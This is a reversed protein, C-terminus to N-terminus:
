EKRITLNKEKGLSDIITIIAEDGEMKILPSTLAECPDIRDFRKGNISVVKEGGQLKGKMSDWVFGAILTDGSVTVAVNWVKRDLDVALPEYPEFYFKHGPFDLTVVGYKLVEAGLLSVAGQITGTIVNIFKGLGLRVDPIKVRYKRDAKEVGGVGMGLVGYGSDLTVVSHQAQLAAYGAETMGLFDSAGTDFMVKELHGNGLNLRVFPINQKNTEMPQVTRLNLSFRDAKAALTLTQKKADIRVVTYPFLSSGIVGDVGYCEMPNGANLVLAPVNRFNIEGLSVSKLEMQKFVSEQGHADTIKQETFETNQYKEARSHTLCVPAGTDFIYRGEIGDIQAHIIITNRVYEFPLEVHYDQAIVERSLFCGWILCVIVKINKM